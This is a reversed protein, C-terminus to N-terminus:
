GIQSRIEYTTVKRQVKTVDNESLVVPISAIKSVILELDSNSLNVNMMSSSSGSGSVPPVPVGGGAINIQSAMNRLAPNSMSVKNLVVEGGELNANIGGNEHSNGTFLGGFKFKPVPQENIIVAGAIGNALAAGMMYLNPISRAVAVTTQIALQALAADRDAEWASKKVNRENEKRRNELADQKQRREEEVADANIGNKIKTEAISNILSLERDYDEQSSALDYELQSARSNKNITFITDALLQGQELAFDMHQKDADKQLEVRDRNAEDTIQTKKDEYEKWKDSSEDLGKQQDTYFKLQGEERTKIVQEGLYKEKDLIFVNRKVSREYIKNTNEIDLNTQAKAYKAKIAYIEGEALLTNDLEIQQQAKLAETRAKYSYIIEADAQKTLSLQNENFLQKEKETIADAKEQEDQEQQIQFRRKLIINRTNKDYVAIMKGNQEVKKFIEEKFADDDLTTIDDYKGKTLKIVEKTKENEIYANGSIIDVEKNAFEKLENLLKENNAKLENIKDNGIVKQQYLLNSAKIQEDSYANLSYNKSIKDKEENIKEQLNKYKVAYDKDSKLLSDQQNVYFQIDKSNKIDNRINQEALEKDQQTYSEKVYQKRLTEKRKEIASTNAEIEKDILSKRDLYTKGNEVLRLLEQKDSTEKILVRKRNEFFNILTINEETQAEQKLREINRDIEYLLKDYKIKEFDKDNKSELELRNKYDNSRIDALRNLHNIELQLLENNIRIRREKIEQNHTADLTSEKTKYTKDITENVKSYRERETVQRDWIAKLKVTKDEENDTSENIKKTEDVLDSMKKEHLKSNSDLEEQKQIQLRKYAATHENISHIILDYDIKVGALATEHRAISETAEDNADKIMRTSEALAEASPKGDDMAKVLFYIGAALAAIAAVAIVIPNTMLAATFGKTAVTAANTAVVEEGEAVVLAETATTQAVLGLTVGVRAAQEKILNGFTKLYAVNQMIAGKDILLQRASELGMMLQIVAAAKKQIEEMKKSEGGFVGMAGSIAAFSGVAGQAMKTFGNLLEGPDMAKFAKTVDGMDNKLAGLRGAMAEFQEKGINPDSMATNLLKIEERMDKLSKQGKDALINLRINIDETNQAM